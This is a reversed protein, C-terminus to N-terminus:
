VHARLKIKSQDDLQAKVLTEEVIVSDQPVRNKHCLSRFVQAWMLQNLCILLAKMKCNCRLQVRM